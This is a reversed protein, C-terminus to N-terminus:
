EILLILVSSYHLCAHCAVGPQFQCFNLCFNLFFSLLLRLSFKQCVHEFFFNAQILLIVQNMAVFIFIIVAFHIEYISFYSWSTSMSVFVSFIPERQLVIDIHLLCCKLLM